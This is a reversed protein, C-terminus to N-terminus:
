QAPLGLLRPHRTAVALAAMWDYHEPLMGILDRIRDLDDTRDLTWRVHSFDAPALLQEIRFAGAGLEKRSGRIYPTVHERLFTHKAREDAERLAAITFVEADLGDPYTRTNCNSAYDCAERDFLAVMDDLLGPDIMPCDATLRMVVPAHVSEAAARFRGLVDLEDGRFVTAGTRQALGVIADDSANTTTAVVIGGLRKAEGVRDLMRTLAPKGHIDALVKGPLRTSTMRAQIIAIPSSM